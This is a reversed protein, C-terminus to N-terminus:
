NFSNESTLNNLQSLIGLTSVGLTAAMLITSFNPLSSALSLEFSLGFIYILFATVIFVAAFILMLVKSLGSPNAQPKQALAENNVREMILEVLNSDSCGTSSKKLIKEFEDNM